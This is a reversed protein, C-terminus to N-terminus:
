CFQTLNVICGSIKAAAECRDDDFIDGCTKLVEVAIKLKETDNSIWPEIFNYFGKNSLSNNM